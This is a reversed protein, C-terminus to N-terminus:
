TLRAGCRALAGLPGRRRRFRPFPRLYRTAEGRCRGLPRTQQMPKLIDELIDRLVRMAGGVGMRADISRLKVRGNTLNRVCRVQFRRVVISM